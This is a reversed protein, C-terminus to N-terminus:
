QNSYRLQFPHRFALAEQVSEAHRVGLELCKTNSKSLYTSGMANNAHKGVPGTIDLKLRSTYQLM